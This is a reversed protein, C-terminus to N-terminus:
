TSVGSIQAKKATTQLHYGSWTQVSGYRGRWTLQLIHVWLTFRTAQAGLNPGPYILRSIPSIGQGNFSAYTGRAYYMPIRSQEPLLSNLIFPGSLGCSVILNRALITDGGQAARVDGTITQVVWGDEGADIDPLDAVQNSRKYADVRVVNTNFVLEGGESEMIDRELSEMFAHSDLIGTEPSWLAAVIKKSLDPVLERAREGTILETPLVPKGQSAQNSYKPWPLGTAKIYLSEIYARQDEHVVVLKGTKRYPINYEDCREYMLQRGRLCLRTKLSNPPYYLGVFSWSLELENSGEGNHVQMYSKQIELALKLDTSDNSCCFYPGAENRRRRASAKRCSVNVEVSITIIPTTRDCTRCSRRSV